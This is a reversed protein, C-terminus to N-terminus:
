KSIFKDLCATIKGCEGHNRPLGNAFIMVVVEGGTLSAEVLRDCKLSTLYFYM